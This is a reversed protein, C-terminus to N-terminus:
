RSVEPTCLGRVEQPWPNTVTTTGNTVYRCKSDVTLVPTGTNGRQSVGVGILAAIALALLLPVLRRFM